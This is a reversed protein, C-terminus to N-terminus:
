NQSVKELGIKWLKKLGWKYHNKKYKKINGKEFFRKSGVGSSLGRLDRIQQKEYERMTAAIEGRTKRHKSFTVKRSKSTRFHTKVITIRSEGRLFM